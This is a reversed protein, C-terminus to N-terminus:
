VAIREAVQKDILVYQKRRLDDPRTTRRYEDEDFAYAAAEWFGNDVIVILAKGEPIDAFSKPCLVIAGQHTDVIAQVKGFHGNTQVYRGM